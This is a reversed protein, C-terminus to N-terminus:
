TRTNTGGTGRARRSHLHIPLETNPVAQSRESRITMVLGEPLLTYDVEINRRNSHKSTHKSYNREITITFTQVALAGNKDEATYTYQQETLETNPATGSIARTETSFTLGDPLAPSLRYAIPSTGTGSTM